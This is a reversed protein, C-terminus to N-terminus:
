YQSGDFKIDHNCTLIPSTGYYLGDRFTRKFLFITLNIYYFNLKQKELLSELRLYEKNELEGRVGHKEINGLM